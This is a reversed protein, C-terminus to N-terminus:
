SHGSSTKLSSLSDAKRFHTPKFAVCTTSHLASVPTKSAAVRERDGSISNDNGLYPEDVVVLSDVTDLQAGGEVVVRDVEGALGLM